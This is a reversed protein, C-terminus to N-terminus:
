THSDRPRLQEIVMSSVWYIDPGRTFFLYKGDPSVGPFREEDETNIEKGLNQPETWNGDAKRFTVYLDFNRLGDPRNSSFLLYSQNPAIYPTWDHYTSNIKTDLAQPQQYDGDVYEACYIGMGGAVGEHSKVFYLSGDSAISPMAELKETNIPDGLNKPESWGMGDKEVCWIDLNEPEDTRPSPRKSYFYLRQGDPSFIPGGDNYKGSFPAPQPSSWQGSERRIYVIVQPLGEDPRRWLSWYIETGDPSIALSSHEHNETSVTGPAFKLPTLGPPRQGLYISETSDDM